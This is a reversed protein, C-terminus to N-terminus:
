APFAGHGQQSNAHGGLHVAANRLNDFCPGPRAVALKMKAVCLNVCCKVLCTCPLVDTRPVPALSCATHVRSPISRQQLTFFILDADAHTAYFFSSCMHLSASGSLAPVICELCTSVSPLQTEYVRLLCSCPRRCPSGLRAGRAQDATSVKHEHAALLDYIDDVNGAETLALRKEDYQTKHMVQRWPAATAKFCASLQLTAAVCLNEKDGESPASSCDLPWDCSNYVYHHVLFERERGHM